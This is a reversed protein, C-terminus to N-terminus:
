LFSTFCLTLIFFYRCGLYVAIYLVQLVSQTACDNGLPKLCIDALSVTSGSFNARLGDVQLHYMKKIDKLSTTNVFFISAFFSDKAVMKQIEFLLKINEDTVIGSQKM